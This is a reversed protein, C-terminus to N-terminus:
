RVREVPRRLAAALLESAVVQIPKDLDVARQRLAKLVAKDIRVAKRYRDTEMEKSGKVGAVKCCTAM